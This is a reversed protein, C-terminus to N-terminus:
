NFKTCIDLCRKLSQRKIDFFSKLEELFCKFMLFFTSFSFKLTEYHIFLFNRFHFIQKKKRRKNARWTLNKILIRSSLYLYFNNICIEKRQLFEIGIKIRFSGRKKITPQVDSSKIKQLLNSQTFNTFCFNTTNWTKKQLQFSPRKIQYNFGCYM